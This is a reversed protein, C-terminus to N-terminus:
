KTRDIEIDYKDLLGAIASLSFKAKKIKNIEPNISYNISTTFDAKEIITNEFTAMTFDCTDFISHSLDCQTFDVEHLSSNKFITKKLKTQYFSAHNLSCHDFSIELGFPNCQDFQLGVMKCEKFKIDRFATKTLKVLSLNCNIFESLSFKIGSFDTNSFNCNIFSCNEYEGIPLGNETFDIQEFKKDEIYTPEM